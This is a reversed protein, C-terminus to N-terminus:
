ELQKKFEIFQQRLEDLDNRLLIVDKELTSIRDTGTVASMNQGGSLDENNEQLAIEPQGALLHMFRSEKRGPQRPLEVVFPGDERSILNRITSETENLSSFSCLRDTRIRIEGVTQPGRLLLVCIVAIEEKSFSYLSKLNHEYKPVRGGASSFQWGLRKDKLTEIAAFCDNESIEMVPDRNSKQNCANTLANLSMPYYEPTTMEKEILAGLVRVEVSSLSIDM